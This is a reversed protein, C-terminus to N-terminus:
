QPIKNNKRHVAIWTNYTTQEDTKHHFTPRRQNLKVSHVIVWPSYRTVRRLGLFREARAMLPVLFNESTRGFPLWNYGTKKTIRFGSKRLAGIVDQYSHAYSKGGLKKLKGKPSSNNGFSLVLSGEQRLIRRSEALTSYLEPIYDLVEIMFVSDVTEDKLPISQADAQIVNVKRDKLKLRKLGYLDIDIGIVDVKKGSAFVSFRGAEAGVDLLLKLRKLNVTELIFNVEVQTLYRGMRTKAAYEWHTERQMDAKWAVKM